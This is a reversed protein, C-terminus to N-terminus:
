VGNNDEKNNRQKNKKFLQIREYIKKLNLRYFINSKGKINKYQYEIMRSDKLDQISEDIIYKDIWYENGFISYNELSLWKDKERPYVISFLQYLVIAITTDGTIHIFIRPVQIIPSLQLEEKIEKYTKEKDM